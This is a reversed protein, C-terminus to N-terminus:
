ISSRQIAQEPGHIEVEAIDRGFVWLLLEGLAGRVHVVQDGQDSVGRQDKAVIRPMGEPELVVPASSGKLFRPAMMKLARHLQEADEGAFTRPGEGNARRVDEHHIFHEAANMVADVYRIPNLKGPGREWDAVLSQYDRAKQEETAQQLKDEFREFFMGAAALPQHERLYLHAAMDRCDWGECLTPADPGYRRLSQALAHREQSAFSM